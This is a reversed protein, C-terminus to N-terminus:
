SHYSQLRKVVPSPQPQVPGAPDPLCTASIRDSLLASHTSTLNHSLFSNCVGNRSCSRYLVTRKVTGFLLSVYLFSNCVGNRSCSRYLVTRKVTGFLLSVYLFSNCVGNRSCSRYLVTRKVTGFLLSVYLHAHLIM